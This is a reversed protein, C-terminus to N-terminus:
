DSGMEPRKQLFFLNHDYVWIEDVSPKLLEQGNSLLLGLGNEKKTQFFLGKVNKPVNELVVVEDYRPKSVLRGMQDVVGWKENLRFTLYTKSVNKGRLVEVREYGPKLIVKGQMNLVKWEKNEM